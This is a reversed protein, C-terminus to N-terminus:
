MLSMFVDTVLPRDNSSISDEQPSSLLQSGNNDPVANSATLGADPDTIWLIGTGLQGKYTTITPIGVGVRGASNRATAGVPTFQPKGNSDLGLKSTM